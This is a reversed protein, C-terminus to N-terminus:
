NLFPSVFSTKSYLIVKQITFKILTIKTNFSEPIGKYQEAQEVYYDDKLFGYTKASIHVRGPEGTSEMRFNYISWRENNNSHRNYFHLNEKCLMPWLSIPVAYLIIM